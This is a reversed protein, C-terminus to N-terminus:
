SGGRPHFRKHYNKLDGKELHTYIQTTGIDSHGLLEQVARLDAGGHLLHTAFSHRLTHVKATIGAKEAIMKFRKWINKRSLGRGRQSLFLRDSKRGKKILKPRAEELYRILWYRSEEGLPILRERNGKGSVKILGESLFLEGATLSSAESVRLGCSYVLEFLARDRIGIASSVSINNLFTEVEEQSMIEPLREMPRPTEVLVAPNDERLGELQLFRFFTRLASAIKAITRQDLSQIQRNVLFKVLTASTTLIISEREEELFSIFSRCERMYTDITLDSLRLEAALYDEFNKLVKNSETM